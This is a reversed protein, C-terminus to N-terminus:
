GDLLGVLVKLLLESRALAVKVVCSGVQGLGGGADVVYARGRHM